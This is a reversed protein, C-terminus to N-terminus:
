STTMTLKANEKTVPLYETLTGQCVPSDAGAGVHLQSHGAQWGLSSTLHLLM